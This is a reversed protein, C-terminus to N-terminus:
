KKVHRHIVNQNRWQQEQISNKDLWSLNGQIQRRFSIPATKMHIALSFVITEANVVSHPIGSRENKFSESLLRWHWIFMSRGKTIGDPYFQHHHYKGRERGEEVYQCMMECWPPGKRNTTVRWKRMTIKCIGHSIRRKVTPSYMINVHKEWVWYMKTLPKSGGGFHLKKMPWVVDVTNENVKIVTFVWCGEM